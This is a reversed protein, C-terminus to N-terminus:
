IDSISNLILKPQCECKAKKNKKDYMSFECNAECLSYNNNIYERQRDKVVIDTRSDTTYAYCIDNYYDHSSNYKFLNDEDIKVPISIGIKTDECISLNLKELNIPNYIEYEIIPILLGEEHIDVKFIILAEEKSIGYHKKLKEECDGLLITSVNEYENNNQNESSTIQYKTDMDDIIIDKKQGKKVNELLDNLNKSSIGNKIAEIMDNKATLNNKNNLKCEETLFEHAICKEICEGNKEFPINIPCILIIDKDPLYKVCINNEEYKYTDDDSCSYICKSKEKILKNQEIPCEYGKTCQYINSNDFYYYYDCKIYCNQINDPNLIFNYNSICELCNNNNSNGKKNCTKCLEYCHKYIENDLYYGEPNFKCLYNNDISLHTDYPCTKYCINNYELSYTDDKTCNDICKKKLPIMKNYQDQCENNTSCQYNGSIDFYYFYECKRYCNQEKGTENLFIYDLICEKCNHNSEDGKGNCTKCTSFCPKYINGDLYYGKPNIQCLNINDSTVYSNQPCNKYCTNNYEVQNEDDDECKEICIDKDLIYKSKESPCGNSSSCIYNGSEDFYFFDCIEYCNNEIGRGNLFHYGSICEECNHNSSNGGENCKKCLYYCPKYINIDLYYGEPDKQCLYNNDTTLYTNYPCDDTCINNYEYIYPRVNTCNDVCEKKVEIKKNKDDPCSDETTCQYNGSIDIFYYYYCDKYCNKENNMEPIVKYNIKCSECNHNNDNGEGYCNNCSFYCPKYINIDLFYGDPNRVCLFSNNLTGYYNPPCESYCENNYEYQFTDDESCENICKGKQSIFKSFDDTCKNIETCQYNGSNDFYYYYDCKRYCNNEKGTENLFIYDSICEICNHNDEDGTGNCIKCSSYCPKYINNDLYFGEGKIQCLNLNDYSAHTNEPCEHYCINKYEFKYTGYNSCNTTCEKYQVLLKSNDESFCTNSCNSIFKIHTSISSIKNNDACFILNTDIKNFIDHVSSIVSSTDFSELNLSILNTCNYFMLSMDSVHSTDFNNINLSILSHCNQFVNKMYIASSTVFSSLDLTTLSYCDYFMNNMITVSTVDVNRIDLVELSKCAYFMNEFSEVKSMDLNSLNLSILNNSDQFMGTMSTVLSTNFSTLDLYKLSKCERFMGGMNTVSKTNFNTLDLSAISSCGQFLSSMIIVNSTDINKLDIEKLASCGFFMSGMDELAELNFNSINLSVLSKCNGFMERMTTIKSTDFNSLDISKLLTCDYFMKNMLSTSSTNFNSFEVYELNSCGNFMQEMNIVKSTDVGLFYIHTIHTLYFFLRYFNSPPNNWNITINNIENVLTGCKKTYINCSIDPSGEVAVNEPRTLSSDSLYAKEGTAKITVILQAVFDIRRFIFKKEDSFHISFIIILFLNRLLIKLLFKNTKNCIKFKQIRNNKKRTRM